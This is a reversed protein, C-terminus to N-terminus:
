PNLSSVLPRANSLPSILGKEALWQSDLIRSQYRAGSDCLVTVIKKGQGKWRLGLEYASQLNLAASTGVFLGDNQAVHFLMDIMRQDSVRIAEDVQAWQFNATIRMIGIGETISSGETKLNQNYFYEFLGSGFPDALRIWIESNKEKFFKSLGGITGGSGVSCTFADVHGDMENWIEPGTGEYHARANATNEFQNAWFSHPSEQAMRKAQHYFHKQDAFPCPSVKIIKAGLAELLAFKEPSQNDPVTLVVKYGRAAALTAIGIGTNGATGEFITYGPKLLGEDEATKLIWKAARDKISGGPNLFEAKGYIENGTLKSLSEIKILPTNGVSDWVTNRM